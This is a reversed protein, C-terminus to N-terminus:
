LTGSADEYITKVNDHPLSTPDGERHEYHVFSDSKQDYRDLGGGSLAVWLTGTRDVYLDWISDGGLTREDQPDHKYVKFDYGDYRNLGGLWTGFWLFGQRDQVVARVDSRLQLSRAIKYNALDTVQPNRAPGTSFHDSVCGAHM